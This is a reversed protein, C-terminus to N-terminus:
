STAATAAIAPTICAVMVAAHMADIAEKAAKGAAEGDIIQKIRKKRSKLEKRDFCTKLLETNHALSILVVTRPDLDAADTFIADRMRSILQREPEPNLEPYIKRTFILLIQQEDARLIGRRVLQRAVRHKLNNIAAFRSVWTRISAHRKAAMKALCEDLLPEGMPTADVVDIRKRRSSADLALRDSLLLEAVIAGAMAHQYMAGTAITGETDRLALLMVEEHLHLNEYLGM